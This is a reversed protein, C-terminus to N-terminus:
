GWILCSSAGSWGLGVEGKQSLLPIVDFSQEFVDMFRVNILCFADFADDIM